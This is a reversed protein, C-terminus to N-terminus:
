KMSKSDLLGLEKSLFNSFIVEEVVKYTGPKIFIFKNSHFIKDEDEEKPFLQNDVLVSKKEMGKKVYLSSPKFFNMDIIIQDKPIEIKVCKLSEQRDPLPVSPVKTFHSPLSLHTLALKGGIPMYGYIMENSLRYFNLERDDVFTAYRRMDSGDYVALAVTRSTPTLLQFDFSSYDLLSLKEIDIVDPDDKSEDLSENKNKPPETSSKKKHRRRSSSSSSAM